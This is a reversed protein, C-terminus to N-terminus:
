TVPSKKVITGQLSEEIILNGPSWNLLIEAIKSADKLKQENYIESASIKSYFAFVAFFIITIIRIKMAM